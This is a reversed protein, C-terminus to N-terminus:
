YNLWCIWRYMLPYLCVYLGKYMYCYLCNSPDISAYIPIYICPYISRDMILYIYACIYINVYIFLHISIMMLGSWCCTRPLVWKLKNWTSEGISVLNDDKERHVSGAASASAPCYDHISLIHDVGFIILTLLNVDQWLSKHKWKNTRISERSLPKAWMCVTLIVQILTM